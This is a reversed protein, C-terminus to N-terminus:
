DLRHGAVLAQGASIGGDGPPIRDHLVIEMGQEKARSAIMGLIPLSYVVGGSVGLPLDRTRAAEVAADTLGHVVAEVAGMAADCRDQHSVIDLGYLTDLVSLVGVRGSTTREVSFGWEPRKRGQELLPELRMSPEGDYTMRGSARLYVSVADLFRGMGTTRPATGLATEWVRDEEQSAIETPFDERGLLHHTAWVLRRPDNVAAEGGVMPIEELHAVRDYRESDAALVEGGWLTGDPGYGLGDITVVIAEDLGADMLLSAAHAHHHQVQVVPVNEKEAWRRALRLTSYRPHLDAAVAELEDIGFMTRFHSISEGLFRQTPQRSSDGIYQTLFMRGGLTLAAVVNLQAGVALVTHDHGVTLPTPVIGRSRRVFLRNDGSVKLVSDDARQIIERDHLLYIDLDLDLAQDKTTVIPEGPLNASTFVLADTRLMEFLLMQAPTYPLMLGVNGLGPSVSELDQLHHKHTLVIPRVPGVLMEEEQSTIDAMGHAAELDRVMLAFPKSPRHYRDRLADTREPLCVIHMGGWGKMVGLKGDMIASAFGPFPDSPVKNGERDLLEYTPSCDPCNTTQAHFRRTVPDRYESSCKGCMPFPAMSTLPRDYPLDRIVSFRAGCDTCNIFPHKFRRDELDQFEAVCSPCVATDPPIISMRSGEASMLIHFATGDPEGEEIEYSTIEALPPLAVRLDDMFREAEPGAGPICVEVNAGNNRVSGPLGRETALRHVTPRFGVGQVTGYILIKALRM